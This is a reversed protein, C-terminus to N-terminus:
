PPQHSPDIVPDRMAGVAKIIGCCNCTVFDNDLCSVPVGLFECALLYALRICEDNRVGIISPRDRIISIVWRIREPEYSGTCGSTVTNTVNHLNLEGIELGRGFCRFQM